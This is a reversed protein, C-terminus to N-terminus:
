LFVCNPVNMKVSGSQASNGAADFAKATLSYSGGSVASSDWNYAYPASTATSVLVGNVYFEVRNVGINDSATATLSLMGTSAPIAKRM